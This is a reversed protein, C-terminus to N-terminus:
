KFVGETGIFLKFPGVGEIKPSSGNKKMIKRKPLRDVSGGNDMSTNDSGYM